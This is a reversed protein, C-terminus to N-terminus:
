SEQASAPLTADMQLHVSGAGDRITMAGRLQQAYIELLTRRFEAEEEPMVSDPGQHVVDILLREGHREITCHVKRAAGDRRAHALADSMGQVVFLSLPVAVDLPVRGGTSHCDLVLLDCALSTRLQSCLAESLDELDITGMEGAREDYLLKHIVGIAAIRARTLELATRAAPERVQAAQMAVLSTIIQLNNKVRHNVERALSLNRDAAETLETDRAAIAEAMTDFRVALSRLEEPAKDFRGPDRTFDGRGLREAMRGLESLWRLVRWRLALWITLSSVLVVLLPFALDILLQRHPASYLRSTPEAHVLYLKGPILPSVSYVWGHGTDMARGIAGSVDFREDRLAGGGMLVRGDAGVIAAEANPSLGQATLARELWSVDLSATIYGDFDGNLFIPRLVMLVRRGSIPGSEVPLVLMESDTFAGTHLAALRPEFVRNTVPAACALEAGATWRGLAVVPGGSALRLTDGLRRSCDPTIEEVDAAHVLSDTSRAALEFPMTQVAATARATHVLRERVLRMSYERVGVSQWVSLVGVPLLALLIALIMTQSLSLREVGRGAM